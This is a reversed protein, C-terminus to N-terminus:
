EKFIFLGKQRVKYDRERERESEKEREGERRGKNRYKQLALLFHLQGRSPSSLAGCGEGDRVDAV